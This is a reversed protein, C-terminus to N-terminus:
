RYGHLGSFVFNGLFTTVVAVFGIIVVLALKRGAWGRSLRLHLYAAYILWTVLSATEKPDWSWFSGWAVDAWVSGLLIAITFLPFGIRVAQYGMAELERPGVRGAVLREGAPAARGAPVAEGAPVPERMALQGVAAGFAIVFSGYAAAAIVVHSLFLPNNQLAPVLVTQAHYSVASWAVLAIAIVLGLLNVTRSAEYRRAEMSVGVAATGWAFVAAFQQTSAFPLIGTDVFRVVIAVTLMVLGATFAGLRLYRMREARPLAFAVLAVVFLALSVVLLIRAM